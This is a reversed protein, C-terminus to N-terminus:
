NSLYSVQPDPQTMVELLSDAGEEFSGSIMQM